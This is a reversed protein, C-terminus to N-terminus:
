TLTVECSEDCVYGYEGHKLGTLRTQPLSILDNLKGSKSIEQLWEIRENYVSSSTSDDCLKLVKGEDTRLLVSNAASAIVEVTRHRGRQIDFYSKNLYKNVDM